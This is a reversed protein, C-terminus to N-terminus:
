STGGKRGQVKGQIVVAALWGLVLGGAAGLWPLIPQVSDTLEQDPTTTPRWTVVRYSETPSTYNVYVARSCVQKGQELAYELSACAQEKTKCEGVDQGQVGGPSGFYVFAECDGTQAVAHRPSGILLSVSVAFLMLGILRLKM